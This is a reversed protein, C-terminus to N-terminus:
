VVVNQPIFLFKQGCTKLHKQAAVSQRKERGNRGHDTGRSSRVAGGQWQAHSRHSVAMGIFGLPKTDHTVSIKLGLDPKAVPVTILSPEFRLRWTQLREENKAPDKAAAQFCCGNTYNTKM